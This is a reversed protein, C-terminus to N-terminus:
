LRHFKLGSDPVIVTPQDILTQLTEIATRYYAYGRREKETLVSDGDPNIDGRRKARMLIRFAHEKYEELVQVLGNGHKLLNINFVLQTMTEEPATARHVYERAQQVYAAFSIDGQLVPV